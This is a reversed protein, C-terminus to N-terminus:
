CCHISQKQQQKINEPVRCKRDAHQGFCTLLFLLPWPSHKLIINKNAQAIVSCPQGNLQENEKKNHAKLIWEQKTSNLKQETATNYSKPTGNQSPFPM